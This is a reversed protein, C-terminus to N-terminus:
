TPEFESSVPESELESEYLEAAENALEYLSQNLEEDYLEAIFATMEDEETDSSAEHEETEYVTLFPTDSEHLFSEANLATVAENESEAIYSDSAIFPTTEQHFSDNINM